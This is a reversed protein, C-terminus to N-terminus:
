MAMLVEFTQAHLHLHPVAQLHPLAQAQPEAHVQLRDYRSRTGTM